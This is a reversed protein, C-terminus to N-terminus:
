TSLSLFEIIHETSATGYVFVTTFLFRFLFDPTTYCPSNGLIFEGLILANNCSIAVFSIVVYCLDTHQGEFVSLCAAPPEILNCSQGGVLSVVSDSSFVTSLVVLVSLKLKAKPPPECM